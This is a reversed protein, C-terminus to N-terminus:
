KWTGPQFLSVCLIVNNVNDYLLHLTFQQFNWLAYGTLSEDKEDDPHRGIKTVFDPYAMDFSLGFPLEGSWERADQPLSFSLVQDRLLRGRQKQDSQGPKSM